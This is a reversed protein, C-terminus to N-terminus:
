ATAGVIEPQPRANALGRDRYERHMAIAAVLGAAFWLISGTWWIITLAQGEFLRYLYNAGIGNIMAHCLMAPLVGGKARQTLWALVFSGGVLSILFSPLLAYELQTGFLPYHWIAWIPSLLLAAVAPGKWEALKPLLYGRWGPEEGLAVFLLAILFADVFEISRSAAQQAPFATGTALAGTAVATLCLLVPLGLAIAYTSPAARVRFIRKVYDRFQRSAASAILAAVLPGLPNLGSDAASSGRILFGYWSLPLVLVLFLALPWLRERTM